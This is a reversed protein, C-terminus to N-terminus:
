VVHKGRTEYKQNKQLCVHGFGHIALPPAPHLKM